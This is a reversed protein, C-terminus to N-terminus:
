ADVIELLAEHVRVDESGSTGAIRFNVQSDPDAVKDHEWVVNVITDDHPIVKVGLDLVQGGYLVWAQVDANFPTNVTATIRVKRGDAWTGVPSDGRVIRDGTSSRINVAIASVIRGGSWNGLGDNDTGFHTFESWYVTETCDCTADPAQDADGEFIKSLMADSTFLFLINTWATSSVAGAITSRLASGAAAADNALVIDCIMEDRVAQLEAGVVSPEDDTGGAVAGVLGEFADILDFLDILTLVGGIAGAIAIYAGATYWLVITTLTAVSFSTFQIIYGPVAILRDVAATAAKCLYSTMEGETTIGDPFVGGDVDTDSTALDGETEAIIDGSGPLQDCCYTQELMQRLLPEVEDVSELLQELMGFSELTAAYALDWSDAADHEGGQGDPEWMWYKTLQSIAGWLAQRYAPDAPTYVVLCQLEEVLTDGDPLHYKGM